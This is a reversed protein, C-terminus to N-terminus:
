RPEGLCGVQETPTTGWDLVACSWGRCISCWSPPLVQSPWGVPWYKPGQKWQVCANYVPLCWLPIATELWILMLTKLIEQDSSISIVTPPVSSLCSSTFVGGARATYFRGRACRVQWSHWSMRNIQRTLMVSFFFYHGLALELVMGPM